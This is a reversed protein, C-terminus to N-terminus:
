RRHLEIFNVNLSIKVSMGNIINTDNVINTVTIFNSIVNIFKIECIILYLWIWYRMESFGNTFGSAPGADCVITMYYTVMPEIYRTQQTFGLHMSASNSCVSSRVFLCIIPSFDIPSHSAGGMVSDERHLPSSVHTEKSGSHWLPTQVRSRGKELCAVIVMNVVTTCWPGRWHELWM